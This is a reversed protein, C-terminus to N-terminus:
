FQRRAVRCLDDDKTGAKPRRHPLYASHSQPTRETTHALPQWKGERRVHWTCVAPWQPWHDGLELGTQVPRASAALLRSASPVGVSAGYHVSEQSPLEMPTVSNEPATKVIGLLSDSCQKQLWERGPGPRIKTQRRRPSGSAESKPTPILAARIGLMVGLQARKLEKTFSFFFTACSWTLTQGGKAVRKLVAKLKILHLVLM